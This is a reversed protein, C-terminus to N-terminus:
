RFVQPGPPKGPQSPRRLLRWLILAAVLCAAIFAVLPALLALLTTLLSGVLEAAAVAANGLGGTTVTSLGRLLTTGTQVIGAMGGGAILAISWKLFPDIDGLVAAASVSGAAVALPAAATDLLNDLWPVAYAAIELLAATAFAVLAPWAAIWQFEPALGVLGCRAAIGLGLFPLILRFGCAASLGIGIFFGTLQSWDAAM